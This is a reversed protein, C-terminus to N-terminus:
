CKVVGELFLKKVTDGERVVKGRKGKLLWQFAKAQMFGIFSFAVEELDLDDRFEGREVGEKLVKKVLEAYARLFANAKERIHKRNSRSFELCIVPVVGKSKELLELHTEIIKELKQRPPLEEEVVKEVKKLCEGTFRALIEEAIEEMSSFHKFIAADSIGVKQALNKATFRKLGEHAIIEAGAKIIKERTKSSTKM